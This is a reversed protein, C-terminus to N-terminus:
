AIGRADPKIIREGTSIFYVRKAISSCLDGMRELFRTSFLFQARMLANAQDQEGLNSLLNKSLVADLYDIESDRQLIDRAKEPADTLFSLLVDQVQVHVIRAMEVLEPPIDIEDERAWQAIKAVRVAHDAMREFKASIITSVVLMRIEKEALMDKDRLLDLVKEEIEQNSKNIHKEEDEVLVLSAEPEKRLLRAMEEVMRDVAQGIALIDEKFLTLAEARV